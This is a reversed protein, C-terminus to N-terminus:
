RALVKELNAVLAARKESSLKDLNHQRWKVAPMAAVAPLGLKTWDPEGREFSVLFQRHAAPMNGVIDAILAERAAVLEEITVPEGTMGVFGRNFEVTIDKRKALLVEHMPRSHSLLYVIFAGRLTDDIGEDALLERADFFDRPHQRDLAAVIKGAYLDPFSLIQMEAFGFTEEVAEAVSKLEPNFVCGRLVPTVEIECQVGEARAVLHTRKGEDNRGESITAGPIRRKIRAATRGMAADIAALSEAHPQVPVYTLDIDVSLRPMNREFLNIATGGKLAFCKEEAIVPLLRILLMAQRRYIDAFPM